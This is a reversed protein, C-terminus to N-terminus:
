QMPTSIQLVIKVFAPHPVSFPIVIGIGPTSPDNFSPSNEYTYYGLEM